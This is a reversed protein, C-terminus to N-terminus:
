DNKQFLFIVILMYKLVNRAKGKTKTLLQPKFKYTAQPQRADVARSERARRDFLVDGVVDQLLNHGGKFFSLLIIQYIHLGLSFSALPWFQRM